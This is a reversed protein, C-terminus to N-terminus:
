GLREDAAAFKAPAYRPADSSLAADRARLAGALDASIELAASRALRLAESATALDARIRELSQGRALREEADEYAALGREFSRPALFSARADRAAALLPDVEIFLSARVGDEEAAPAGNLAALMLGASLLLLIRM